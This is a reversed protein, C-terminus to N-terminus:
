PVGAAPPSGHLTGIFYRGHHGDPQVQDHLQISVAEGEGRGGLSRIGCKGEMDCTWATGVAYSVNLSVLDLDPRAQSLLYGMPQYDPDWPTGRAVRSHINGTLVVVLDTTANDILAGLSDAMKRDRDQSSSGDTRNFLAFSIGHGGRRLARLSELLGLMAESTVGYQATGTAQWVPGALLAERDEASGGSGLFASFRAEEAEVLEFGVTLSRGARAAHCALAAVFAPSEETGHIEGLLIVSARRQRSVSARRQRSVARRDILSEVGTIPPCEALAPDAPQRALRAFFGGTAYAGGRVRILIDHVGPGLPTYGNTRPHEPNRGFDHWAFRDRIEIYGDFGGDTWIAMPDLTSLEFRAQEGEAVEVTTRFYAVSREGLFDTVRGTVVAGRPDAPFSLWRHETGGDTVADVRGTAAELDPHTGALPGLAQWDTVHDATDYVIGPPRRPGRYSLEDIATARLNDIWVPGGVVRPKFGAKGRDGEYFDFTVKPIELNGVYFHCVTGKVEAAFRQWRGIVIADDGELPTRYEEYLMRAPNWDRRPNVRIYSGNGKIYISGLDVRDASEAYHYILGLYNHEDRPFLVEGEIRYGKQGASWQESGRILAHLRAGGPALELVKGHGPDDTDLIRIAEADSIEWGALGSEFDDSFLEPRSGSQAGAPGGALLLAILCVARARPGPATTVLFSM